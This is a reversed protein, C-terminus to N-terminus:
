RSKPTVLWFPGTETCPVDRETEYVVLGEQRDLVLAEGLRVYSIFPGLYRVVPEDSCSPLVRDNFYEYGVDEVSEYYRISLDDIAKGPFREQIASRLFEPLPRDPSLLTASKMAKGGLVLPLPFSQCTGGGDPSNVEAGWGPLKKSPISALAPLERTNM